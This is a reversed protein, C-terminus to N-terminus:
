CSQVGCVAVCWYVSTLWCYPIYEACVIRFMRASSVALYISVFEEVSVDTNCGRCYLDFESGDSM